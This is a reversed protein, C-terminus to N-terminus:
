QLKRIKNKKKRAEDKKDWYSRIMKEQEPRPYSTLEDNEGLQTLVIDQGRQPQEIYWVIYIRLALILILCLRHIRGRQENNATLGVHM